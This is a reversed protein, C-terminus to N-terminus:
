CIFRTLHMHRIIISAGNTFIVTKESLSIYKQATSISEYHYLVFSFDVIVGIFGPAVQFRRM